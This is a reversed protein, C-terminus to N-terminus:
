WTAKVKKLEEPISEKRYVSHFYYNEKFPSKRVLHLTNGEIQAQYYYRDMSGAISVNQKQFFEIEFEKSGITYFGQNGSDLISKSNKIRKIETNDMMYPIFSLVHGSEFFWLIESGSHNSRKKNNNEFLFSESQYTYDLRYWYETDLVRKIGENPINKLTWHKENVRYRGNKDIKGYYPSCGFVLFSLILIRTKEKLM